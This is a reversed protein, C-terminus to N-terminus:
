EEDREQAADDAELRSILDAKKGATDLGRGRCEEKLEFVTFEDYTLLEESGEASEGESAPEQVGEDQPDVEEGVEQPDRIGMEVAGQESVADDDERLTWFRDEQEGPREQPLGWDGPPPAGQPDFSPGGLETIKPM